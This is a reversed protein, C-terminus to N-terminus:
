SREVVFIQMPSTQSELTVGVRGRHDADRLRPISTRVRGASTAGILGIATALLSTILPEPLAVVIAVVRAPM